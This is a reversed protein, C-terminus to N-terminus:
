VTVASLEQRTIRDCSRHKNARDIKHTLDPFALKRQTITLMLIRSDRQADWTGKFSTTQEVWSEYFVRAPTNFLHHEHFSFNVSISALLHAVIAAVLDLAFIAAYLVNSHEMIIM